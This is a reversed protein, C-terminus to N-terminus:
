PTLTLDVTKTSGYFTATFTVVQTSTVPKTKCYFAKATAGHYFATPSPSVVALNADSSSLFLGMAGIAPQDITATGSVGYGGKSTSKALTMTSLKPKQRVTITGTATLGQHSATVTVLVDSTVTVGYVFFNATRQGAPVSVKVPSTLKFSNDSMAIDRNVPTEVNLGLTAQRSQDSYVIPYQFIVSVPGINGATFNQGSADPPVTVDKSSPFFVKDDHTPVLKYDGPPLALAYHGNADTSASAIENAGQMAKVTCGPLGVSNQKIQGSVAYTSQLLRVRWISRGYTGAYLYSGAKNIKLDSVLTNPLGAVTMNLWSGGSNLTMFAGLDSGAYWTTPENPDYVVTNVPAAPLRTGGSGSVLTWSPTAATTDSCRYVNGSNGVAVLIENPNQPHVAIAGVALDPLLADLRTFTAGEDPTRWVQGNDAGSYIVSGNSPAAALYSIFGTGALNQTSATWVTAFGTYKHLTYRSGAFLESGDGAVILPAIFNAQEPWAGSIRTATPDDASDYRYVTLFQSSTYHVGPDNQDFACWAGDYAFLNTWASLNGRSAPTSNDQAGGMVRSEDTPHIAINYFMLDSIRNNLPTFTASSTAPSLVGEFIGGDNGILIRNPDTPHNAFCHQDNHTKAGNTYTVGLDVWNSGGDFSAALTILGVFVVDSGGNASTSIHYDYIKQSWNYNDGPQFDNPFGSKISVWSAGANTSKYIQEAGTALVYITNKDVKSCAIDMYVETASSPHAAPTWNVGDPSSYVRGGVLNGGGIAWWTRGGSNISIDLDQFSHGPAFAMSWTVGADTSRWIGRSANATTALVTNRNSPDIMIKTIVGVSFQAKGYNTWTEGGDTTKMVGYAFPAHLYDGTGAYVINPDVPDVALTYCQLFPWADSKGTFTVGGDTSKFVGGAAGATYIINPNSPAYAMATKRGSVPPVGFYTRFPVGLGYPGLLEWAGVLGDAKAGARWKPMQDRHEAARIWRDVDLEGDAEVRRELYYRLAEYYGVRGREEGGIKGKWLENKARLYAIHDEVSRLSKHDIGRAGAPLIIQIGLDRLRRKASDFSGRVRVPLFGDPERNGAIGVQTALRKLQSASLDTDAVIVDSTPGAVFCSLTVGFCFLAVYLAVAWVRMRM